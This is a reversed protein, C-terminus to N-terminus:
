ESNRWPQMHYSRSGFIGSIRKFGSMCRKAASNCSCRANRSTNAMRQLDWLFILPHILGPLTYEGAAKKEILAHLGKTGPPLQVLDAILGYRFLAIEHRRDADSDNM